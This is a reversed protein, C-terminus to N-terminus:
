RAARSAAVAEDAARLADAAAKRLPALDPLTGPVECKTELVQWGSWANDDRWRFPPFDEDILVVDADQDEISFGISLAHPELEVHTYLVYPKQYHYVTFSKEGWILDPTVAYEEDVLEALPAPDWYAGIQEGWIANWLLRLFHALDHRTLEAGGRARFYTDLESWELGPPLTDAEVTLLADVATRVAPDRMYAAVTAPMEPGDTM